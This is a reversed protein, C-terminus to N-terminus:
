SAFQLQAEIIYRTKHVLVVAPRSKQAVLRQALKVAKEKTLGKARPEKRGEKIVAWEELDKSPAVHYVLPEKV